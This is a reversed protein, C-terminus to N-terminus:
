NIDKIDYINYVTIDSVNNTFTYILSTFNQPTWETKILSIYVTIKNGNLFSIIFSGNKSHYLLKSVKDCLDIAEQVTNM